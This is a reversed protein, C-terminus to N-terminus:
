VIKLCVIEYRCCRKKVISLGTTCFTMHAPMCLSDLTHLDSDFLRSFAPLNISALQTWCAQYINSAKSPQKVCFTMHVPMCESFSLLPRSTLFVAFACASEHRSSVFFSLSIDIIDIIDIIDMIDM